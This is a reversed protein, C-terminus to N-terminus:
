RSREGYEDMLLTKLAGRQARHPTIISISAPAIDKVSGPRSAIIDRVLKAEFENLKRSGSEDHVM